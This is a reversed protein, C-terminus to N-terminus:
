LVLNIDNFQISGYKLTLKAFLQLHDYVKDATHEISDTCISM